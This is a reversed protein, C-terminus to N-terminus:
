EEKRDRDYTIWLEILYEYVGTDDLGFSVPEDNRMDCLKTKWGSITPTKGYFLAFLKQAMQETENPNKNWHIDIAVGKVGMSTSKLGGVALKGRNSALNRICITKEESREFSGIKYNAILQTELWLGIDKLTMM